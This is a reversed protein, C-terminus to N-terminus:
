SGFNMSPHSAGSRMSGRDLSTMLTGVEIVYIISWRHLKHTINKKLRNTVFFIM